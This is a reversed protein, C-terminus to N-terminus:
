GSTSKRTRPCGTLDTGTYIDVDSITQWAFQLIMRPLGVLYRCLRELAAWAAEIPKSMWRCVGKAAFHCGPRDAALYLTTGSGGRFASHFRVPLEQDKEPESFALRIGPIAVSNTAAMGCEAVLKEVQRPDAEYELGDQTWRIVRKFIVCESADEPCPGLRRQTTLEYHKDVEAECWGLERKSGVTTFDGGHVTSVLQRTPHKFM